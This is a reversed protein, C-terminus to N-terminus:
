SGTSDPDERPLVRTELETKFTKRFGEEQSRVGWLEMQIDGSATIELVVGGKDLARFRADRVLGTHTRDLSESLRVFMSLVRVLQRSGKDLAAFDPHDKDPM